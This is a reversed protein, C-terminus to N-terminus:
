INRTRLRRSLRERACKRLNAIQQRTAGLKEGIVEDDLPLKDWIAALEEPAMEMADAIQRISAVRLMPLLVIATGGKEDRLNLLVALRQRPPLQLIESWVRRLTEKNDMTADLTERPDSYCAEAYSNADSETQPHVDRINWVEAMISVLEDIELPSGAFELVAEVLIAPNTQDVSRNELKKQLFADLIGQSQDNRLSNASARKLKRWSDFGCFMERSESEWLALGPQHTLIYRIRNKLSLRRPYKQRLHQDSANYAMRAVYSRLSAIAKEQPSSKRLRLIQVLRLIVDGSVDDVEQDDSDIVLRSSYARLKYSVIERVLPQAHNLILQELIDDSEPENDTNLFLFLLEDIQSEATKKNM